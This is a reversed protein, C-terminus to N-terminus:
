EAGLAARTYKNSPSWLMFGAFDQGLSDRVARIQASVKEVNYTVGLSFDQLWPRLKAIYPLTSTATTSTANLRAYASDLSGRVIEYPNEAPNEFGLVGHGYHSPYVMPAVFDFYPYANEILQGIGM